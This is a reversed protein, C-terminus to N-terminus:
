MYYNFSSFMNRGLCQPEKLVHIKTPILDNNIQICRNERNTMAGTAMYRCSQRYCLGSDEHLDQFVFYLLLYCSNTVKYGYGYIERICMPHGMHTYGYLSGMCMDAQGTYAYPIGM